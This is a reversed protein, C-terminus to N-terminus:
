GRWDVGGRVRWRGKRSLLRAFRLHRGGLDCGAPAPWPSRSVRDWILGSRFVEAPRRGWEAAFEAKLPEKEDLSPLRGADEGLRDPRPDRFPRGGAACIARCADQVDLQDVLDACLELGVDRVAVERQVGGCAFSPTDRWVTSLWTELRCVFVGDPDDVVLAWAQADVGVAIVVPQASGLGCLM